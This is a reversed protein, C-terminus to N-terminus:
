RVHIVDGARVEVSEGTGPEGSSENRVIRLSGDAGISHALGEIIEDKSLEVRIRQGITSCRMRYEDILDAPKGSVLTEYRIELESLLAALVAARDFPQGAEIAMSTAQERLETPFGEARVNVNMGIGVVVSANPTGV